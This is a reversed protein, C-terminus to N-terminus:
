INLENVEWSDCGRAASNITEVRTSNHFIVTILYVAILHHMLIVILSSIEMTAPVVLDVVQFRLAKAHM